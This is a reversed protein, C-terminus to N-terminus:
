LQRNGRLALMIRHHFPTLDAFLISRPFRPAVSCKKGLTFEGLRHSEECICPVDYLLRVARTGKRGNNDNACAVSRGEVVAGPVGGSHNVVQASDVWAM